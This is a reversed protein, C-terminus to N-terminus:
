DVTEAPLQEKSRPTNSSCKPYSSCVRAYTQGVREQAKLDLEAGARRCRNTSIVGRLRWVEKRVALGLPSAAELHMLPLLREWKTAASLPESAFDRVIEVLAEPLAFGTMTGASGSSLEDILYLGGLGGVVVLESNLSLIEAMRAATPVAEMKVGVVGPNRRRVNLIDEISLRVGSSSPHDQIIVPLGSELAEGAAQDLGLTRSPSVMLARAHARMAIQVHEKVLTASRDTVGIIVPLKTMSTLQEAVVQREYSSLESAEGMVGLAVFGAVGAAENVTVLRSISASDVSGDEAFPTPLVAFVGAFDLPQSTSSRSL